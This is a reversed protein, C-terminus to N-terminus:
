KLLNIYIQLSTIQVMVHSLYYFYLFYSILNSVSAINNIVPSHIVTLVNQADLIQTVDMPRVTQLAHQFIYLCNRKLLKNTYNKSGKLFSNVAARKNKEM